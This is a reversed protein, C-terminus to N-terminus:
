RDNVASILPVLCRGTRAASRAADSTSTEPALVFVTAAWIAISALRRARRDAFGCRPRQDLGALGARMTWLRRMRLAIPGDSRTTTSPFHRGHSAPARNSAARVSFRRCRNLRLRADPQPRDVARDPRYCIAPEAVPKASRRRRRRHAARGRETMPRSSGGRRPRCGDRCVIERQGTSGAPEAAIGPEIRRRVM